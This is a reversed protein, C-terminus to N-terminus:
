SHWRDRSGGRGIERPLVRSRHDGSTGGFTRRPVKAANYEEKKELETAPNDSLDEIAAAAEEDLGEDRRSRLASIAKFREIALMWTSVDRVSRVPLRMAFSVFSSGFCGCMTARM